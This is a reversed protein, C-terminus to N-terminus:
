AASRYTPTALMVERQREMHATTLAINQPVTRHVQHCSGSDEDTAHSSKPHLYTHIQRNTIYLTHAYLM